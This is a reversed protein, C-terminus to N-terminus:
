FTGGNERWARYESPTMKTPDKTATGSAKVPTIPPPANTATRAQPFSLQAEIRGLERAAALPPMQSLQRALAQNKGLHYAIDASRDSELVLDAVHPAVIDARTAVAIVQDFDAYRTRAEATQSQFESLREQRTQAEIAKLREEHQRYEEEAESTERQAAKKSQKFLASAAAFELPDPFDEERPPAEGDYAAKIRELRKKSREAEKRAEEAETMLRQELAKRRERRKQSESKEDPKDEAKPKDGEDEAPPTTDQGETNETAESETEQSVIAEETAESPAVDTEETM